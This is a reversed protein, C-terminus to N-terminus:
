VTRLNCDTDASIVHVTVGRHDTCKQASVEEYFHSLLSPVVDNCTYVLLLLQLVTLPLMMLQLMGRRILLLLTMHRM